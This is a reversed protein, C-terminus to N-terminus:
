LHQKTSPFSCAEALLLHLKERKRTKKNKQKKENRKNRTKRKGTKKIKNWGNNADHALTARQLV